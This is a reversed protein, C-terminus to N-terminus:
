QSRIAQSVTPTKPPCLRVFFTQLCQCQQHLFILFSSANGCACSYFPPISVPFSTHCVGGRICIITSYSCREQPACRQCRGASAAVANVVFVQSPSGSATGRERKQNVIECGDRWSSHYVTRKSIGGEHHAFPQKKLQRYDKAGGNEM